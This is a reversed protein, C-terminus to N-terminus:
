TELYSCWVIQIWILVHIFQALTFTQNVLLMYTCCFGALQHPGIYSVGVGFGFKSLFNM